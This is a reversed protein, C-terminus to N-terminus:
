RWITNEALVAMDSGSSPPSVTVIPLISSVATCRDAAIGGHCEGLKCHCEKGM